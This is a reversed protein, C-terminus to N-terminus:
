LKLEVELEGIFSATSADADGDSDVNAAADADFDVAVCRENVERKSPDAALAFLLSRFRLLSLSLVYPSHDSIMRHTQFKALDLQILNRAVSASLKYFKVVSSDDTHVTCQTCNREREREREREKKRDREFLQAV